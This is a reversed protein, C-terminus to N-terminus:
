SCFKTLCEGEEENEKVKKCLWWISSSPNFM